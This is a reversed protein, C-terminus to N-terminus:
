IAVFKLENKKAYKHAASSRKGKVVFQKIIIDAGYRDLDYGFAKREIKKVSPPITLETLSTAYFTEAKITKLKKPINVSCLGSTYFAKNSIKEISNPLKLKWKRGLNCNYFACSNIQKVGNKISLKKIDAGEFSNKAITKVNGTITLKKLRAGCFAKYCIKKVTKPTKFTTKSRKAPYLLLNTCKKNYLVGSKTCFYKNGKAVTIRKLTLPFANYGISKVYKSIKISKIGTGDFADKGIKKISSPLNISKIKECNEFTGEPIKPVGEKITVKSLKECTSFIGAGLKKVSGPITVETLLTEDFAYDGIETVTDPINISKINALWFAGAGIKQLGNTLTVSKLTDNTLASFAEKGITKVSSPITVSKLTCGIFASIGIEELTNPFKVQTILADFFAYNGIKKVGDDIIYTNDKCKYRPFRLLTTQTKNYIIGDKSSYKPNKEDVNIATLYSSRLAWKDIKEVSAPINLTTTKKSYLFDFDLKKVTHGDVTDPITLNKASGKYEIVTLTGDKELYYEIKNKTLTKASVTNIPLCSTITVALILFSIIRKM